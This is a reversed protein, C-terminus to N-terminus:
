MKIGMNTSPLVWGLGVQWCKMSNSESGLYTKQGHHRSLWPDQSYETRERERCNDLSKGFMNYQMQNPCTVNNGKKMCVLSHPPWTIRWCDESGKEKKAM